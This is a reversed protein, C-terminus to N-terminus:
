DGVGVENAGALRVRRLNLLEVQEFAPQSWDLWAAQGEALSGPNVVLTHGVREHGADESHGAVVCLSPHLGDILEGVLPDGHEGGLKGTPASGVLLVRHPKTTTLLPRLLYGARTRSCADTECAPGECITGGLGIVAVDGEEIMSAHALHVGPYEVEANMGLRLFDDLPIDAPGPIIAAFVGLKGVAEFFREMFHADKTTLGWYTGDRAAYQRSRDLIGGAFLIGDPQRVDVAQRLWELSEPRSHVGSCLIFRRM